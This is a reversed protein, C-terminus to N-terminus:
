LPGDRLCAAVLESVKARALGIATDAAGYYIKLEDPEGHGLAATPFVVNGVNGVREYLELPDMISDRM